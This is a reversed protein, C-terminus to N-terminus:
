AFEVRPLWAHAVRSREGLMQGMLEAVLQRNMGGAALNVFEGPDERLDFLEFEDGQPTHYVSLRYRDVIWSNVYLGREARFDVWVGRRAAGAEGTWSGVHSVGQMEPHVDLGAAALFTPAVDVCSVL